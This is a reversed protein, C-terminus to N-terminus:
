IATNFFVVLFLLLLLLQRSVVPQCGWSSLQFCVMRHFDKKQGESVWSFLNLMPMGMTQSLLEWKKALRMPCHLYRCYKISQVPTVRDTQIKYEHHGAAWGLDLCYDLRGAGSSQRDRYAYTLTLHRGREKPVESHRDWTGHFPLWDEQMHGVTIKTSIHIPVCLRGLIGSSAQILHPTTLLIVFRM